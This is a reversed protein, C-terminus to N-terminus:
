RESRDFISEPLQRDVPAIPAALPDLPEANKKAETEVEISKQLEEQRSIQDLLEEQRKLETEIEKELDQQQGEEVEAHLEKDSGGGNKSPRGRRVDSGTDLPPKGVILGYLGFTGAGLAAGVPGVIGGIVTGMIAGEAAASTHRQLLGPRKPAGTDG